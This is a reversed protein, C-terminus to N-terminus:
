GRIKDFFEKQLVDENTLGYYDLISIGMHKSRNRYKEKLLMNEDRLKSDLTVIYSKVDLGFDKNISSLKYLTDTTIDRETLSDYMVTKCEVVYLTNNFIFFVDIENQVNDGRFISINVAIDSNNLNLKNKILLYIYEEFWGGTFFELKDKDLEKINKYNLEVLFNNIDKRNEINIKKIKKDNRYNRLDNLVNKFNDFFKSDKFNYFIFELKSYEKELLINPDGSMKIGYSSLYEKLSLKVDINREKIQTYPFLKIIKNKKIPLYFIEGIGKSKYYEYVVMSMIKTGCTINIFIKDSDNFEIESLKKEIKINDDESITLIKYSKINSTAIIDFTKNKKEMEETSIFYYFDIYSMEKVFLVNPITQESVLSVLINSM